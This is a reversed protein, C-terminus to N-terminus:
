MMPQVPPYTMRARKKAGYIRLNPWNVIGSRTAARKASLAFAARSTAAIQAMMM